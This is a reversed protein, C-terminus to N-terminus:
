RTAGPFGCRAFKVIAEARSRAGTKRLVNGVHFQVTNLSIALEKAIESNSRGRTLQLLVQWERDTLHFAVSASGSRTAALDFVAVDLQDSTTMLCMLRSPTASSGAIVRVGRGWHARGLTGAVEDAAVVAISLGPSIGGVASILNRAHHGSDAMLVLWDPQYHRVFTPTM